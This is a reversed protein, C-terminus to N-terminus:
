TSDVIMTSVESAGWAGRAGRVTGTVSRSVQRSYTIYSHKFRRLKRIREKAAEASAMTNAKLTLTRSSKGLKPDRVRVRPVLRLEKETMRKGSTGHIRPSTPQAPEKESGHPARPQPNVRSM